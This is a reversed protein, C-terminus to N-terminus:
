IRAVFFQFKLKSLMKNNAATKIGSLERSEREVSTKPNQRENEDESNEAETYDRKTDVTIGDDCIEQSQQQSQTVNGDDDDIVKKSSTCSSDVIEQRNAESEQVTETANACEKEETEKTAPMPQPVNSSIPNKEIASNDAPRQQSQGKLDGEKNTSSVEDNKVNATSAILSRKLPARTSKIQKNTTSVEADILPKTTETSSSDAKNTATNVM